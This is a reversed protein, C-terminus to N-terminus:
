RNDSVQCTDLTVDVCEDCQVAGGTVMARNSDLMSDQLVVVRASTCQVAGGTTLATNNVLTTGQLIVVSTAPSAYIAGGSLASNNVMSCGAIFAGRKDSGAAYGLIAFAGGEYAAVNNAFTSAWVVAVSVSDVSVAAGRRGVNNIAHVWALLVFPCSIIVLASDVAFIDTNQDIVPSMYSFTTHRVDVSLQISVDSGLYSGIDSNNASSGVNNRNFLVGPPAATECPGSVDEMCLGSSNSNAFTCNLVGVCASSRVRVVCIFPVTSIDLFQSNTIFLNTFREPMGYVYVVDTNVDTNVFESGDISVNYVGWIGVASGSEPGAKNSSFMCGQVSLVEHAAGDSGSAYIAGGSHEASNNVFNCRVISVLQDTYYTGDSQQAAAVNIAGGINCSNNIFASDQVQGHDVSIHLTGYSASEPESEPEPEPGNNSFTCNDVLFQSSLSGKIAVVPTTSLDDFVSNIVSSAGNYVELARASSSSVQSNNFILGSTLNTASASSHQFALVASTTVCSTAVMHDITINQSWTFEMIYSLETDVGDLTAEHFTVNATHNFWLLADPTTNELVTVGTSVFRLECKWVGCIAIAICPM